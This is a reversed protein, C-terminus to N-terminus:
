LFVQFDIKHKIRYDCLQDAFNYYIYGLTYNSLAMGYQNPEMEQMEEDETNYISLANHASEIAQIILDFNEIFAEQEDVVSEFLKLSTISRFRLLNGEFLASNAIYSFDEQTIRLCYEYDCILFAIM